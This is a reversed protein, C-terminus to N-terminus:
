ITKKDLTSIIEAIRNILLCQNRVFFAQNRITPWPALMLLRGENIASLLEAPIKSQDSIDFQALFVAPVRAEIALNLIRREGQSVFSSIITLTNPANRDIIRSQLEQFDAETASRSVKVPIITESQLLIKNGVALCRLFPLGEARKRLCHALTQEENLSSAYTKLEIAVSLPVPIEHIYPTQYLNEM